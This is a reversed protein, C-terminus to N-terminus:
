DPVFVFVLELLLVEDCDVEGVPEIFIVKVAGIVLVNVLVVVLELVIDDDPEVDTETFAEGVCNTVFVIDTDLKFLKVGVM